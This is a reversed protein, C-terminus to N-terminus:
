TLSKLTIRTCTYHSTGNSHRWLGGFIEWWRCKVLFARVSEEETRGAHVEGGM